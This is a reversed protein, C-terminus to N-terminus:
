NANLMLMWLVGAILLMLVSGIVIPFRYLYLRALHRVYRIQERFNLKSEGAHRKAFRIPVDIPKSCSCKVYLELAIKYGIPNLLNAREWTKRHIAFFGSMPDSLPALPRALATAVWSIVRRHFPWHMDIQGGPGYRTGIAFDCGPQDLTELLQPIMEPPHQLDADLVVFHDFKALQFGALVASSLGRSETRVQLRVPYKKSLEEIIRETGDRSDDDVIILEAEIRAEKTAGFVREALAALNPAECYTPVVISAALRSTPM